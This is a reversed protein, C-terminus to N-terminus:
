LREAKIQQQQQQQQQQQVTGKAPVRQAQLLPVRQVPVHQAVDSRVYQTFQTTHQPM